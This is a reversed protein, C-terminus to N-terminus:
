ARCCDIKDDLALSDIFATIEQLKLIVTETDADTNEPVWETLEEVKNRVQALASM